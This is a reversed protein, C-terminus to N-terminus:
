EQESSGSDDPTDIIEVYRATGSLKLMSIIDPNAGQIKPKQKQENYFNLIALSGSASLYPVQTLDFIVPPSTKTILSHLSASIEKDLLGKLTILSMAGQKGIRLSNEM